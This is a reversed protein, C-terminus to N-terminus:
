QHEGERGEHSEAEGCWPLRPCAESYTGSSLQCQTPLGRPAHVAEPFSPTPEPGQAPPDGTRQRACFHPFISHPSGQATGVTKCPARGTVAPHPLEPERRLGAHPCAACRRPRPCSPSGPLATPCGWLLPSGERRPGPNGICCCISPERRATCNQSSPTNLAPHSAAPAPPLQSSGTNRTSM